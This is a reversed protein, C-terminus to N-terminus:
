YPGTMQNVFISTDSNDVDADMDLDADAGPPCSSAPPSGSGSFCLQFASFDALDVARDGNLDGLVHAYRLTIEAVGSTFTDDSATFTMTDTGTAQAYPRWLRTPGTGELQGQAPPSAVTYSLTDGDPDTAPLEVIIPRNLPVDKTYSFAAPQQSGPLRALGGTSVDVISVESQALLGDDFESIAQLHAPGAGLDKGLLTVPGTDPRAAVVRGSSLVRIEVVTGGTGAVDITFATALDGGTPAVLLSASRGFNGSHITGVWRGQSAVLTDDYAVVRVDHAGDRWLSTDIVFNGGVATTAEMIGDVYLDFGAIGATPHGTTAAPTLILEGAVPGAPADAVTVEPLYAFPRTLPDGYFLCQFPVRKVSRFLAEGLSLGQFYWVHLRPHPFKWTEGEGAICPEEVTGMSGSAGKVIWRSMKVQSSTGFNGAHSTLHDCFSGALLTMDATDIAPSEEGTMVGLCDHRGEPLVALLHEAQGGLSQVSAVAATFHPDRPPSRLPDTTEM